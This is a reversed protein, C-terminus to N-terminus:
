EYKRMRERLSPWHVTGSSEGYLRRGYDLADRSIEDLEVIDTLLRACADSRKRGKCDKEWKREAPRLVKTELLRRWVILAWGSARASTGGNTFAAASAEMSELRAASARFDQECAMISESRAFCDAKAVAHENRLTNLLLQADERAAWQRLKARADERGELFRVVDSWAVGLETKGLPPPAAASAILALALLSTALM